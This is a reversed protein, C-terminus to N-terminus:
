LNKNRPPEFLSTELTPTSTQRPSCLIFQPSVTKAGSPSQASVSGFLTAPYVPGYKPNAPSEYKGEPSIKGAPLIGNWQCFQKTLGTMGPSGAVLCYKRSDPRKMTAVLFSGAYPGGMRPFSASLVNGLMCQKFATHGDFGVPTVQSSSPGAWLVGSEYWLYPPLQEGHPATPMAVALSSRATNGHLTGTVRPM